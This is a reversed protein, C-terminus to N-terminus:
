FYVYVSPHTLYMMCGSFFLVYVVFTLTIFIFLAKNLVFDNLHIRKYLNGIFHICKKIREFFYPIYLEFCNYLGRVYGFIDSFIYSLYEYEAIWSIQKSKMKFMFTFKVTFLLLTCLVTYVSYRYYLIINTDIGHKEFNLIMHRGIALKSVHCDEQFISKM